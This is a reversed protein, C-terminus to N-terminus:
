LLFRCVQDLKDAFSGERTDPQNKMDTRDQALPHDPTQPPKISPRNENWNQFNENACFNKLYIYKCSMIVKEKLIISPQKVTYVRVCEWLWLKGLLTFSSRTESNCLTIARLMSIYDQITPIIQGHKENILLLYIGVSAQIVYYYFNYEFDERCVEYLMPRELQIKRQGDLFVQIGVEVLDSITPRFLSLLSFYTTNQICFEHLFFLKEEITFLVPNKHTVKLASWDSNFVIGNKVSVVFSEFEAGLTKVNRALECTGELVTDDLCNFVFARYPCRPSARTGIIEYEERYRQYFQDRFSSFSINFSVPPHFSHSCRRSLASSKSIKERVINGM